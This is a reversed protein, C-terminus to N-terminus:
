NVINLLIFFVGFTFFHFYLQVVFIPRLSSTEVIGYWGLLYVSESSYQSFKVCYLLRPVVTHLYICIYTFTYIYIYINICISIHILIYIYLYLYIYNYM